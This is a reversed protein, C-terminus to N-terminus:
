IAMSWKAKARMVYRAAPNDPYARLPPHPEVALLFILSALLRWITKQVEDGM